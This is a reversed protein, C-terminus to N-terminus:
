SNFPTKDTSWALPHRIGKVTPMAAYAKLAPEVAKGLRLDAFAVMAPAIKPFQRNAESVMRTEPVPELCKETANPDKGGCEMYVTSVINHGKGGNQIEAM